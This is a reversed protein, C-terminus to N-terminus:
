RAFLSITARENRNTCRCTFSVRRIGRVTAPLDIVRTRTNGGLYEKIRPRYTRGNTMEIVVGYIEVEGGYVTLRAQRFWGNMGGAVISQSQTQRGRVDLAGLWVWPQPKYNGAGSDGGQQWTDIPRSPNSEWDHSKKECGAALAISATLAIALCRRSM